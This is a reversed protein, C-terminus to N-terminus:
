GGLYLKIVGENNLLNEGTDTMKNRGLELVYGRHSIQLAGYANQEVLIIPTGERNIELIEKFILQHFRPALGLTPEDLLLLKPHLILARGMVLLQQEGGSLTASNQKKRKELIPFRRYIEVIDRRVQAKDNRIFAGMELNEEVTLSPFVSRGQPVFCIGKRVVEDPRLNGIEMGHFRINGAMPKLVGSIARLVTSKGAGNPGIICIIESTDVYISIDRLVKIRGYGAHLNRLELIM